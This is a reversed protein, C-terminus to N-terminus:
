AGQIIKQDDAELHEFNPYKSIQSLVEGVLLLDKLKGFFGAIM